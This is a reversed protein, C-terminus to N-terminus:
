FDFLVRLITSLVGSFGSNAGFSGLSLGTQKIESNSAGIKANYEAYAQEYLSVADEVGDISKDVKGRLAAAETLYRFYDDETEAASLLM